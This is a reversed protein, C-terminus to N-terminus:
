VGTGAVRCGTVGLRRNRLRRIRGLRTGRRRVVRAAGVLVGRRLAGVGLRGGGVGLRLGRGVGRLLAGGAGRGVAGGARGGVLGLFARVGRRLHGTGLHGGLRGVLAAGSRQPHGEAYQQGQTPEGEQDGPPSAVRPDGVLNLRSGPGRDAT